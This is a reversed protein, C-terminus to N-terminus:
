RLTGMSSTRGAHGLMNSTMKDVMDLAAQEPSARHNVTERSRYRAVPAHVAHVAHQQPTYQM